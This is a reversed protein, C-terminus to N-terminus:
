VEIEVDGVPANVCIQIHQDPESDLEGTLINRTCGTKRVKTCSFCIGMRCGYEPRLGAAEAQELLTRGDNPTTVDSETYTVDGTIPQDPDLVPSTDVTFAETHLRDALDRRDAYERVANMLAPPGCLFVQAGDVDAVGDLHDDHFHEPTDTRTYHLRVDVHNLTRDLADLEARYPVDEPTRAYHVFTVPRDHGEAILTRLMSLVPTIGSGGSVLVTRDPRVDPLVFEGTASSLTLVTGPRTQERLYRSIFGGSHATVTLEIESAKQEANAPSFFRRHRVGDVVVSVEIYQGARHGSWQRTPRLTLTVSRDTQLRVDTVKARTDRWTIMPDILELYRDVPYPTATAEVITEVLRAIKSAM